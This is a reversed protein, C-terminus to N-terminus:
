SVYDVDELMEIEAPMEHTRFTADTFYKLLYDPIPNNLNWRVSIPKEGSHTILTVPGIYFYNYKFLRDNKKLRAFLLKKYDRYEPDECIIKGNESNRTTSNQSEWQLTNHDIFHDRYMTDKYDEGKDLTVFMLLTRKTKINILGSQGTITNVEKQTAGLQRFIEAVDKRTYLHLFKFANKPTENLLIDTRKKIEDHLSYWNIEENKIIIGDEFKLLRNKPTGKLGNSITLIDERDHPTELHEEDIWLSEDLLIEKLLQIQLPTLHLNEIEKLLRIETPNLLEEEPTLDGVSKYFDLTSNFATILTRYPVFKLIKEIELRETGSKRQIYENIIQQRIPNVAKLRELMDDILRLDFNISCGKPPRFEPTSSPDLTTKKIDQLILNIYEPGLHSYFGGLLLSPIVYSNKYNGIIDIVTIKEKNPATRLGRGLQQLFIVMSQTPRLFLISRIDPVDIGENFVDVAFIIEIESSAMKAKALGPDYGKSHVAIAPVNNSNFFGAMYDAHEISVCFAISPKQGLKHYQNLVAAAWEERALASTLEKTDYGKNRKWTIQTYDVIDDKIGHYEFPVLWDNEIAEPLSCIYPVNRNCLELIDKNDMRYPTATLGLLFQPEFHQIVKEYSTAKSHHFEDVIIYDFFDKEFKELVKQKSMKQVSAFLCNALDKTYWGDSFLLQNGFGRVEDFVKRAQRLIENRHALFLVKQYKASDFAALHTKGLGTPMVVLARDEGQDRLAELQLLADKQAPRPDLEKKTRQQRERYFSTSRQYRSRYGSIWEDDPVKAKEWLELFRNEFDHTEEQAETWVSNWEINRQLGTTTLNSSGVIVISKKNKMKFYYAKAHLPQTNDEIIRLNYKTKLFAIADPDSFDLYTGTIIRVDTEDHTWDKISKAGDLTIFASIIWVKQPKVDNLTENLFELFRHTVLRYIGIGM